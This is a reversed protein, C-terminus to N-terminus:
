VLEQAIFPVNVALDPQESSPGVQGQIDGPVSSGSNLYRVVITNLSGYVVFLIVFHTIICYLFNSM